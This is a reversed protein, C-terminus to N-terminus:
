KIMTRGTFIGVLWIQKLGKFNMYLGKIEIFGAM